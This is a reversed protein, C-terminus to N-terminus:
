SASFTRNHSTTHQWMSGGATQRVNNCCKGISERVVNTQRSADSVSAFQKIFNGELDYQNVPIQTKNSSRMKEKSKETHRKGTWDPMVIDTRGKMSESIKKKTEEHHKGGSNGGKRLNYGNPVLSNNSSIYMIELENLEHNLCNQIMIFEFGEVGYKKLANNLYHCSSSTRCHEKFRDELLMRTTQGVYIKWNIKNVIKYIFGM